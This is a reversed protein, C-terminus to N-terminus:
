GGRGMAKRRGTQQKNDHRGGARPCSACGAGYGAMDATTYTRAITALLSNAGWLFLVGSFVFFGLFLRNM